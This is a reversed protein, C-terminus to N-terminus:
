SPQTCVDLDAVLVSADVMGIGKPDGKPWFLVAVRDKYFILGPEAEFNSLDENLKERAARALRNKLDNTVTFACRPQEVFMNGAKDFWPADGRNASAASCGCFSAIGLFISIITKMAFGARIGALM